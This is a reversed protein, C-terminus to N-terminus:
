GGNAKNVIQDAETQSIIEEATYAEGATNIYHETVAAEIMGTERDVGLVTALVGMRYEDSAPVEVEEGDEDVAVWSLDAYNIINSNLLPAALETGLRNLYFTNRESLKALAIGDTAWDPMEFPETAIRGSSHLLITDPKGEMHVVYAQTSM